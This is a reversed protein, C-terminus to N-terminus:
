YYRKKNLKFYAWVFFIFWIFDNLGYIVQFAASLFDKQVITTLQDINQQWWIAWVVVYALKESAFALLIQRNGEIKQAAAIYAFGWIMIMVLGFNNIVEPQNEILHPNTFFLSFLLISSINILGCSILAYRIIKTNM